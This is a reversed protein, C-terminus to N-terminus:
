RPIPVSGLREVNRPAREVIRGRAWDELKLISVMPLGSEPMIGDSLLFEMSLKLSLGPFTGMAVLERLEAVAEDTVADSLKM